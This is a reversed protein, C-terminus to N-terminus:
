RVAAPAEMGADRGGGCLRQHARAVAGVRQAQHIVQAVRRQRGLLLPQVQLRDTGPAQAAGPQTQFHDAMFHEAALRFVRPHGEDRAPVVGAALVAMAFARSEDLAVAAPVEEVGGHRHFQPAIVGAGATGAALQLFAAARPDLSTGARGGQPRETDPSSDASKEPVATIRRM